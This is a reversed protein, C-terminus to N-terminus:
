VLPIQLFPTVIKEAYSFPPVFPLKERERRTLGWFGGL